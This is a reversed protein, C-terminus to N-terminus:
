YYKVKNLLKELNVQNESITKQNNTIKKQNGYVLEVKFCLWFFMVVVTFQWSVINCIAVLLIFGAIICLINDVIDM